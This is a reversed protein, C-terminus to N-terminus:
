KSDGQKYSKLSKGNSKPFAWNGFMTGLDRWSSPSRETGLAVSKAVEEGARGEDLALEKKDKLERSILCKQPFDKRSVWLYM